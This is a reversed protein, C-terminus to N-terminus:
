ALQSLLLPVDGQYVLLRLRSDRLRCCGQTYCYACEGVLNPPSDFLWLFADRAAVQFGQWWRVREHNSARWILRDKIREWMESPPSSNAVDEQLVWRIMVDVPDTFERQRVDRSTM